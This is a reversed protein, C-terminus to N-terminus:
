HIKSPTSAASLSYPNIDESSSLVPIPAVEKPKCCPALEKKRFLKQYEDLKLIPKGELFGPNRRRRLEKHKKASTAKTKM